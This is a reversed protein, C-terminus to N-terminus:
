QGGGDVSRRWQGLFRRWPGPQDAARVGLRDYLDAIAALLAPLPDLGAEASLPDGGGDVWCGRGWDYRTRGIKRSLDSHPHLLVTGAAPDTVAESDAVPEVAKLWGSADVRAILAM